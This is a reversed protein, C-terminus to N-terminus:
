EFVKIPCSNRGAANAIKGVLAAKYKFSQSNNVSLDANNAPVRDRKFQRLSGSTDSCNDSYGILKRMPMIQKMLLCMMLKQKAHLLHHVTKLHLM